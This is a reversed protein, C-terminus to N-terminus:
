RRMELEDYVRLYRVAVRQWDYEDSFAIARERHGAYSATDQRMAELRMAAVDEAGAAVLVGLGSREVLRRFPPIDSLIPMLGASMAEIAALGFGEHRSLCVFCSARGILAALDAEGPNPVLEVANDLGRASVIARLEAADHDFERGAIILRWDPNTGHLRALLEIARPIGKNESWRGFYIMVPLPQGASRGRFKQVNVGNEIVEMRGRGVIPKFLRGDNDSTAIIRDYARASGRTVTHFFVKKLRAAYPTHFFGGHTSAVMPRRHLWRTAALYDFFFDIGHVHIVDGDLAGLVQPCLPYRSSGGFSLRRVPIGDIEEAPPLTTRGDRFVRDLTVIAPLHGSELQHRAINRVVDEMGGVSPHYQRVVHVIRM